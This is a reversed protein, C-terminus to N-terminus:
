WPAHAAPEPDPQPPAVDYVFFENQLWVCGGSGVALVLLALSWPVARRLRRPLRGALGRVVQRCRRRPREENTRM